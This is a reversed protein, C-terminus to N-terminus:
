LILLKANKRIFDYAKQFEWGMLEAIKSIGLEGREYLGLFINKYDISDAIISDDIYDPFSKYIFALIEKGTFNKFDEKITDITKEILEKNIKEKVNLNSISDLNSLKAKGIETIKITENEIISEEKSKSEELAYDLSESFPGFKHPKFDFFEFIDDFNKLVLFAIKQFKIKGVIPEANLGNLIKLVLHSHLDIYKTM